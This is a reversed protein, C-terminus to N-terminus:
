MLMSEKEHQHKHAHTDHKCTCYDAPLVITDHVTGYEDRSWVNALHWLGDWLEKLVVYLLGLAAVTQIQIERHSLCLTFRYYLM